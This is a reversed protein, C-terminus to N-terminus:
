KLKLERRWKALEASVFDWADLFSRTQSMGGGDAPLLGHEEARLAWKFMHWTERRVM